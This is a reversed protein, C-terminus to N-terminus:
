RTKINNQDFEKKLNVALFVIRVSMVHFSNKYWTYVSGAYTGGVYLLTFCYSKEHDIFVYM